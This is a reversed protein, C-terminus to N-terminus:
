GRRLGRCDAGLSSDFRTKCANADLDRHGRYNTAPCTSSLARRPQWSGRWRGAQEPSQLLARWGEAPSSAATFAILLRPEAGPKGTGQQNGAEVEGPIDGQTALGPRGEQGPNSASPMEEAPKPPTGAAGM